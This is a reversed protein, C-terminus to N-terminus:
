FRRTEPKRDFRESLRVRHFQRRTSVGKSPRHVAPRPAAPRPTLFAGVTSATGSAPTTLVNNTGPEWQVGVTPDAEERKVCKWEVNTSSPLLITGTWNPYATPDLKVGAAPAWNGLAANNGVVYVCQGWYTHGQECTVDVNVTDADSVPDPGGVKAGVHIAAAFRRPVVFHARRSGDVSITPGQCAGGSFDGKIVDCYTGPAMGTYLTQNVPFDENNIVVLGKDGRSFAIANAGNDWRNDVSWASVTHNRFAVMNAIPRWRHECIWRHGGSGHPTGDCRPTGDIYVPEGPPGWNKGTDEPFWYSSMVKPSGYPWALLFVHLLDNLRGDRFTVVDAANHRPEDHNDTFVVAKHSPLYNWTSPDFTFFSALTEGGKFKANVARAFRFETVLGWPFYWDPKVAEATDIFIVEQFIDLEGRRNVENLIAQVEGADVHKAADIRFGDVRLNDALDNFYDIIM